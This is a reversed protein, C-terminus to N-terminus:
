MLYHELCYTIMSCFEHYKGNNRQKYEQITQYVYGRDDLLEDEDFEQELVTDYAAKRQEILSNSNLNMHELMKKGTQNENVPLIKGNTSFYFIEEIRGDTPSICHEFDYWNDKKHNCHDESDMQEGKCSALLNMYDMQASSCVSCQTNTLYRRDPHRPMFHEIECDDLSSTKGIYKECYCCIYGQEEVLAKKLKWYQATGKLDEYEAARGNAARFRNKWDTFHVPENRKQIHRM